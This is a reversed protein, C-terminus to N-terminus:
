CSAGASRARGFPMRRVGALRTPRARNHALIAHSVAATPTCEDGRAILVDVGNAALVELTSEFAPRSLAHTDVGVLLPGDIGGDRRHECIAQSIALVARTDGGDLLDHGVKDLWLRQRRGHRQRTTKM